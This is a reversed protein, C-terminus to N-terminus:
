GTDGFTESRVFGVRPRGFYYGQFLRVGIETLTNFEAQTEVGEGLVQIGLDSAIALIGKVIVRKPKRDDVGRLLEMDIKILDPQFKALLGPGAYGAGFDDVATM